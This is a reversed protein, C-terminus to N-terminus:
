SPIQMTRKFDNHEYASSNKMSDFWSYTSELSIPKSVIYGQIHECGLAALADLEDQSEVGEAICGLGMDDCMQILSNVIKYNVSNDQLGSVFSRDIKIMDIPLSHFQSLSTNGTGFDDIALLIGMSRLYVATTQAQELNQMIATETIELVVRKPDVSHKNVMAGIKLGIESVAFDNASVNFSLSIHEPWTALADLAKAFLHQTIGSMMGNHEAIPIFQEPSINGLEKNHWRALAEFKVVELTKVDNIPQYVLDIEDFFQRKRMEQQIRTRLKMEEFHSLDFVVANNRGSSKAEYLAYDAQEFMQQPDVSMESYEVFGISVSISVKDNGITYEPKLIECISRGLQLLQAAEMKRNIILAFEDGGLRYIDLLDGVSKNLRHAVECLLKDGMAHGFVDNVLKFGDLDMSAITLPAGNNKTVEFVDKLNAFFSRRNPLDTLIDINATKSIADVNSSLKKAMQLVSDNANRFEKTMFSSNKSSEAASFDGNGVQGVLKVFDEIPRIMFKSAFSALIIAVGMGILLVFLGATDIRYAKSELENLPQPVMVGWGAVPVSTYGAIMDAKLAPSYFIKVGQRGELMAKVASIKSMNFRSDQWDQRPHSLALGHQDVIAAHGLDGFKISRGLTAIYETSIAGIVMLDDVVRLAYITNVNHKTPFVGTINTVDDGALEKFLNWRAAPVNKPCLPGSTQISKIIRGSRMKAICVHRVSLNDFIPSIKQELQEGHVGAAIVDFMTVLDTHYRSLARSLSQAIVLHREEVDQIESELAQSHPWFWFLTM